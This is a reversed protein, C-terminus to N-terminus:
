KLGAALQRHSEALEMQGLERYATALSRHIRRKARAQPLARELDAVAERWRGLRLLIEGRTDLFEPNDVNAAVAAQALRLARENQPPNAHALCWALNNMLATM